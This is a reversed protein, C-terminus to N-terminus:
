VIWWLCSMRGCLRLFSVARCPQKLLRKELYKLLSLLLPITVYLSSMVVVASWCLIVTMWAYPLAVNGKQIVTHHTRLKSM